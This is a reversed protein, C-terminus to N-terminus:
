PVKIMNNIYGLNRCGGYKTNAKQTTEECQHNVLKIIWTSSFMQLVIYLQNLVVTTYSVSKFSGDFSGKRIGASYTDSLTEPSDDSV